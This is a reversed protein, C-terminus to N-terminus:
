HILFPDINLLTTTPLSYYSEQITRTSRLCTRTRFGARHGETYLRRMGGQLSTKWSEKTEQQKGLWNSCNVSVGCRSAIHEHLLTAQREASSVISFSLM